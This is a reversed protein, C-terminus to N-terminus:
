AGVEARRAARDAACGACRYAQLNGIKRRGTTLKNMDCDFCLFTPVSGIGPMTFPRDQAQKRDDNRM